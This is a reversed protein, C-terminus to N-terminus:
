RKSAHTGASPVGSSDHWTFGRVHAEYIILDHLPLGLPRDGQWDFDSGRQPLCCAAQPWTRALGLAGGRGYQVDQLPVRGILEQRAVLHAHMCKCWTLITNRRAARQTCTSCGLCACSRGAHM